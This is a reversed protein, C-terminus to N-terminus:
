FHFNGNDVRCDSYIILQMRKGVIKFNPNKYAVKQYDRFTESVLFSFHNHLFCKLNQNLGCIDYDHTTNKSHTLTICLNSFGQIMVSFTIFHYMGM